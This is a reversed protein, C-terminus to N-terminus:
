GEATKARERWSLMCWQGLDQRQQERHAWVLSTTDTASEGNNTGENPTGFRVGEFFLSLPLTKAKLPRRKFMRCLLWCFDAIVTPPYEPPSAVQVSHTPTVGHWRKPHHVSRRVFIFVFIRRPRIHGSISIQFAVVLWFCAAVVSPLISCSVM